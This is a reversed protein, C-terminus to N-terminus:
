LAGSCVQQVREVVETAQPNAKQSKFAYEGQRQSSYHMATASFQKTSHADAEQASQVQTDV